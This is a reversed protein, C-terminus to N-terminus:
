RLLSLYAFWDKSPESVSFWDHIYVRDEIRIEKVAFVTDDSNRWGIILNDTDACELINSLNEYREEINASPRSLTDVFDNFLDDALSAVSFLRVNHSADWDLMRFRYAKFPTACKMVGSVPGDYYDLTFIQCGVFDNATLITNSM